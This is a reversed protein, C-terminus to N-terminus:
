PLRLDSHFYDHETVGNTTCVSAGCGNKIILMPFNIGIKAANIRTASLNFTIKIPLIAIYFDVYVCLHFKRVRRCQRSASRNEDISAASCDVNM